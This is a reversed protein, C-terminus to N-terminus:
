PATYIKEGKVIVAHRGILAGLAGGLVGLAVAALAGDEKSNAASGVAAGVAAGIGAGALISACRRYTRIEQIDSQALTRQAAIRGPSGREDTNLLLADTTVNVVEGHFSAGAKTRVTIAAHAPLNRVLQWHSMPPQQAVSSWPALSCLLWGSALSRSRANKVINMSNFRAIEDGNPYLPKL